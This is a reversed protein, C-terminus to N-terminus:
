LASDLQICYPFTLPLLCLLLCVPFPCYALSPLVITLWYYASLLCLCYAVLILFVSLLPLLKPLPLHLRCTCGYCCLVCAVTHPLPLAIAFTEPERLIGMSAAFCKGLQMIGKSFKCLVHCVVHLLLLLVCYACIAVVYLMLVCCAACLLMLLLVVTAACLLMCCVVYLLCCCLSLVVHLLLM